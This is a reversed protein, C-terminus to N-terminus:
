VSNRRNSTIKKQTYTDEEAAQKQSGKPEGNEVSKGSTELM